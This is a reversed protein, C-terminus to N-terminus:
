KLGGRLTDKIIEMVTTKNKLYAVSLFPRSPMKTTGFEVMTGYFVKTDKKDVGILVYKIGDKTKIGSIKIAERLKGSQDGFLSTAKADSLVPEGAKKLAQNTLKNVNANMANLKEIIADIGELSIHNAM